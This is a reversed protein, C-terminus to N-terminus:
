IILQNIKIEATKKKNSLIGLEIAEESGSISDSKIKKMSSSWVKMQSELFYIWGVSISDNFM